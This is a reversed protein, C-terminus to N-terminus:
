VMIQRSKSASIITLMLLFLVALYAFIVANTVRKCFEGFQDCIPSWGSHRNGYKGVYGIATAAACGALALSLISQWFGYWFWILYLGHWVENGHFSSFYLRQLIFHLFFRPTVIGLRALVTHLLQRPKLMSSSTPSYPATVVCFLCMCHRKSSCLVQM